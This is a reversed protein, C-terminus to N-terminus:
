TLPITTKIEEEIQCYLQMEDWSIRPYYGEKQTDIAECVYKSLTYAAKELRGTTELTKLGQLTALIATIVLVAALITTIKKYKEMRKIVGNRM